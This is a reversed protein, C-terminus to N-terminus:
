ISIRRMASDMAARAEAVITRVVEAAGPLDNILGASQGAILPFYEPNGQTAAASYVDQAANAQVLAPLVPAGSATYEETFSNRIARAYLGSLV